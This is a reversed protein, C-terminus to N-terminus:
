SCYAVCHVTSIYIFWFNDSNRTKENEIKYENFTFIMNKDNFNQKQRCLWLLYIERFFILHVVLHLRFGFKREPNWHRQLRLWSIRDRFSEFWCIYTQVTWRSVFVRMCIHMCVSTCVFVRAHFLRACVCACMCSGDDSPKFFFIKIFNWSVGCMLRLIHIWPRLRVCLKEARRLLHIRHASKLGSTVVCM